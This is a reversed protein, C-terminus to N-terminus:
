SEREVRLEARVIRAFLKGSIFRFPAFADAFHRGAAIARAHHKPFDIWVVAFKKAGGARRAGGDPGAHYRIFAGAPDPARASNRFFSSYFEVVSEVQSIPLSLSATVEHVAELPIHLLTRSLSSKGVHAYCQLRTVPIDFHIDPARRGCAEIHM